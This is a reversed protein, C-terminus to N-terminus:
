AGRRVFPQAQRRRGGRISKGRQRALSDVDQSQGVSLPEEIQGVEHTSMLGSSSLQRLFQEVSIPMCSNGLQDSWRNYV